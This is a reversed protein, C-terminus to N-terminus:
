LVDQIRDAAVIILQEYGEVKVEAFASEAAGSDSVDIVRGQLVHKGYLDMAIKSPDPHYVDCVRFSVTHNKLDV